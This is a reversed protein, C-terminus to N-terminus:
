RPVEAETRARGTSTSKSLPRIISSCIAKLRDLLLENAASMVLMLYDLKEDIRSFEKLSLLDTETDTYVFRLVLQMIDASIHKLDIHLIKSSSAADTETRPAYWDPDDFM